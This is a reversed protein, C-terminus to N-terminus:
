FPVDANNNQLARTQRRRCRAALAQMIKGDRRRGAITVHRGGLFRPTQM